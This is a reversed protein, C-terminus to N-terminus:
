KGKGNGNNGNGRNSNGKGSNRQDNNSQSNNAQNTNGEGTLDCDDNGLNGQGQNGSNKMLRDESRGNGQNGSAVPTEDCVGGKEFAQLHSESGKQLSEFVTRVDDALDEALFVEYMAINKIEAEVGIEYVEEETEPIVVYASPDFTPVELDYTEYLRLVSEIHRTEAKVINVFPNDVGFAEILQEYEYKAMIEDEYAYQLMEELTYTGGDEVLGSGIDSASVTVVSLALILMTAIIKKM